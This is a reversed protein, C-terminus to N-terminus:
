TINCILLWVFKLKEYYWVSLQCLDTLNDPSCDGTELCWLLHYCIRYVESPSFLGCAQDTIDLLSAEQWWMPLYCFFDINIATIICEYSILSLIRTQGYISFFIIVQKCLFWLSSTDQRTFNLEYRRVLASTIEDFIPEKLKDVFPEQHRRFAQMCLYNEVIFHLVADCSEEGSDVIWQSSEIYM